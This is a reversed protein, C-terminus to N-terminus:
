LPLVGDGEGAPLLQLGQPSLNLAILKLTYTRLGGLGSTILWGQQRGPLHTGPRLHM